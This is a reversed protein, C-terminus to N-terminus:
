ANGQVCEGLVQLQNYRVRNSNELVKVREDTSKLQEVHTWNEDQLQRHKQNLQAYKEEEM